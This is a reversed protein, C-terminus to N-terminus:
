TLGEKGGGRGEGRGRGGEWLRCQPKFPTAEDEGTIVEGKGEDEM